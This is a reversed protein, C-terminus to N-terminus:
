IAQIVEDQDDGLVILHHEDTEAIWGKRVSEMLTYVQFSGYTHILSGTIDEYVENRM